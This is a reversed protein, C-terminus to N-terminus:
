NGGNVIDPHSLYFKSYISNRIEDFHDGSISTISKIKSMVFKRHLPGLYHLGNIKCKKSTCIYLINKVYLTDWLIENRLTILGCKNDIISELDLFIIAIKQEHEYSVIDNKKTMENTMDKGTYGNNVIIRSILEFVEIKNKVVVGFRYDQRNFVRHIDLIIRDLIYEQIRNMDKYDMYGTIYCKPGDVQLNKINTLILDYQSYDRKALVSSDALVIQNFFDGFYLKLSKEVVSNLLVGFSTILLANIKRTDKRMQGFNFAYLPILYCIDFTSYRIGYKTRLYELCAYSTETAALFRDKMENLPLHMNEIHYENRFIQAVIFYSLKRNMEISTFVDSLSYMKQIAINTDVAMQDVADNKIKDTEINDYLGYSIILMAIFYVDMKNLNYQLQQVHLEVIRSALKIVSKYKRIKNLEFCHKDLIGDRTNLVNSYFLATIIKELTYDDIKFNGFSHICDFIITQSPGIMKKDNKYDDDVFEAFNTIWIRKNLTNGIVEYGARGSRLSLGYKMLNQKVRKSVEVLYTNNTNMVNSLKEIHMSCNNTILLFVMSYEIESKTDLVRVTEKKVSNVIIYGKNKLAIIGFSKESKLVQMERAITRLSVDLMSALYEATVPYSSAEIIRIIENQRQTIRMNDNREIYWFLNSVDLSVIM